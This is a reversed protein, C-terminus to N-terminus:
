SLPTTVLFPRGRLILLFAYDKWHLNVLGEKESVQTACVPIYYSINEKQVIECLSSIYDQSADLTPRPVTYYKSVATSFRTLGFLGEYDFVIVRAGASYFDRALHLTQVTSGGSIMITRKTRHRDGHRHAPIFYSVLTFPFEFMKWFVWLGASIWFTPAAFSLPRFIFSLIGILITKTLSLVLLPIWLIIRVIINPQPAINRKPIPEHHRKPPTELARDEPILTFTSSYNRRLTGIPSTSLPSTSVPSSPLSPPSNHRSNYPTSRPTSSTRSPICNVNLDQRAWSGFFNEQSAAPM